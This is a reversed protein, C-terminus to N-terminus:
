GPSGCVWYGGAIFLWASSGGIRVETDDILFLSVRCRSAYVNRFGKLRKEWLWAAVHSVVVFPELAKAVKRLSNGLYRLYLAYLAVPVPTRLGDLFGMFM